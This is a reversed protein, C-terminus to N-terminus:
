ARLELAGQADARGGRPMYGDIRLLIDMAMAKVAAQFAAEPSTWEDADLPAQTLAARTVIDKTRKREAAVVHAAVLQWLKACTDVHIGQGMQRWLMEQTQQAQELTPGLGESSAPGLPSAAQARPEDPTTPQTDFVVRGVRCAGWREMTGCRAQAQELTMSTYSEHVIPGASDKGFRPHEKDNQCVVVYIPAANV